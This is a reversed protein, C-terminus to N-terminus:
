GKEVAHEVTEYVPLFRDFGAISFVEEVFGSLGCLALSGGDAQLKKAVALVSRLGASSIYELASLYLIFKRGGKGMLDACSKELEQATAADLRGSVSVVTFGQEDRASIEM